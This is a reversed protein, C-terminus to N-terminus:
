GEIIEFSELAPVEPPLCKRLKGCLRQLKRQLKAPDLKGSRMEAVTKALTDAIPKLDSAHVIAHRNHDTLYQVLGCTPHFSVVEADYDYKGKTYRCFPIDHKQLFSELNDFEGWSAQDDYLSLLLLGDGSDHRAALLDDPKAPEFPREGWELSVRETAIVCCLAEAISRRVKGGIEIEAALRESM